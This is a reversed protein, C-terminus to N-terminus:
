DVHTFYRVDESQGSTCIGWLEQGPALQGYLPVNNKVIPLGTSTTVASTDGIFVTTNDVTNIWVPRYVDNANLIKTATDGITVNGFSAM